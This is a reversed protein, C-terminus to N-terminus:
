TMFSALYGVLAGYVTSVYPSTTIPCMGGSRCGVFRYYAYGGSAGVAVPWWDTILTLM